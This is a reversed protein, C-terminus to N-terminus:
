DLIRIKGVIKKVNNCEELKICGRHANEPYLVIYAGKKLVTRMMYKPDNWYVIDKENDYPESVSLAGTNAIDMAESGEVMWQIDIYKRHSELRCEEVPKTEYKQVMYYFNDNVSYKGSELNDCELNSIYNIADQVRRQIEENSLKPAVLWEVFERLAGEGARNDCIYDSSLKVQEVADSPCGIIGGAEKISQMCEFDLIDDGFYACDRLSNSGISELLTNFKDKKGQYVETIGLEECRCQVISSTRATIVIPIIGIPKLIYNFIYGDKVSFAKMAEGSPGMYIKGDTLTGDVDLILYKVM